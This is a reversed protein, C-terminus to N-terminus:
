RPSTPQPKVSAPIRLWVRIEWWFSDMRKVPKILFHIAGSSELMHDQQARTPHMASILLCPIHLRKKIINICDVGSMETLRLDVIVADPVYGNDLLDLACQATTCFKLDCCPLSHKAQEGLSVDDDILLLRPKQTPNAVFETDERGKLRKWFDRWGWVSISGLVFGVCMNQVTFGTTFGKLAPFLVTALGIVFLPINRDDVRPSAKFLRKLFLSVILVVIVPPAFELKLLNSLGPAVEDMLRGVANTEM